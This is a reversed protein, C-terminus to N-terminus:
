IVSEELPIYNEIGKYFKKYTTPTIIHIGEQGNKLLYSDIQELFRQCWRHRDIVMEKDTKEDKEDYYLLKGGPSYGLYGDMGAVFIRKAGMVIAVGILLVSITRCNTQIVGNQIDFDGKLIDRYYVIEYDRHTYERVMEDSFHQSLFIRSEKSVTDIYMMFRKKNNFAHYHPTFLGSLNNAGLIIPDIKEIFKNIKGKYEKLTPGNALILFDREKHRDIYPVSATNDEIDYVDKKHDQVGLGGILGDGVLEKLLDSSYGIPNRKQVFEMTKCIDEITYERFEVLKKAYNPHCKYMGSLMFPLQYGWELEKRLPLFYTDICNLIPIVNYKKKGLLEMYLIIIETPLNGAGRGIGYFTSDILQVGCRIAELTNAFSMQLSNHPHFGAKIGSIELLPELLAKVQDPFLSGYSDVAYIYDINSSKLLSVLYKQEGATYNTYGMANLCVQYGKKKLKELLNIAGLLDNKHVAVRVIDIVSDKSNVFDDVDVKGFDAMLALKAGDIGEVVKRIVNEECFRWQGYKKRDFYKDTGRYGIEMVDVGSKSISRYVERVLRKDFQWSNIYGGDRITCDLIKVGEM